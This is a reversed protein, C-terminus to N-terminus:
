FDGQALTCADAESQGQTEYVHLVHLPQGQLWRAPGHVGGKLIANSVSVHADVYTLPLEHFGSTDTVFGLTLRPTGSRIDTEYNLSPRVRPLRVVGLFM